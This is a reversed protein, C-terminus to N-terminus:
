CMKFWGLWSRNRESWHKQRMIKISPLFNKEEKDSIMTWIINQYRKERKQADCVNWCRKTNWSLCNWLLYKGQVFSWVEYLDIQVLLLKVWKVDIKVISQAINEFVKFRFHRRSEVYEHVLNFYRMQHTKTFCPLNIFFSGSYKRAWNSLLLSDRKSPTGILKRLSSVVWKLQDNLSRKLEDNNATTAAMELGVSAHQSSWGCDRTSLSQRHCLVLLFIM